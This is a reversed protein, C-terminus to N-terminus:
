VVTASTNLSNLSNTTTLQRDIVLVCRRTGNPCSRCKRIQM